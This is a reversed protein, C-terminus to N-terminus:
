DTAPFPWLLAHGPVALLIYIQHPADDDKSTVSCTLTVTFGQVKVLPTDETLVCEEHTLIGYNEDTAGAM